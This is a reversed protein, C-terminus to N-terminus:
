LVGLYVQVPNNRFRCGWRCVLLADPLPGTFPGYWGLEFAVTTAGDESPPHPSGVSEFDCEMTRLTYLSCWSVVFMASGSRCVIVLSRPLM